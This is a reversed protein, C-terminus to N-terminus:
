YRGGKTEPSSQYERIARARHEGKLGLRDFMTAVAAPIDGGVADPDATATPKSKIGTGKRVDVFGRVFDLPKGALRKAEAPTIRREAVASALFTQREHAEAQAELQRVRDQLKAHEDIMAVAAGAAAQGRAGTARHVAAGVAKAVRMKESSAPEGEADEKDEDEDEAGDEEYEGEADEDKEEDKKDDDEAEALVSSAAALAALASNIKAIEASLTKRKAATAGALEARLAALKAKLKAQM